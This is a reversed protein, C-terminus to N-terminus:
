CQQKNRLHIRVKTDRMYSSKKYEFEFHVLLCRYMFYLFLMEIVFQISTGKCSSFQNSIASICLNAWNTVKLSIPQLTWSCIQLKIASKRVNYFFIGTYKLINFINYLYEYTVKLVTVHLIVLLVLFYMWNHLFTTKIAQIRFTVNVEGLLIGNIIKTFLTHVYLTFTFSVSLLWTQNLMNDVDKGVNNFNLVVRVFHM